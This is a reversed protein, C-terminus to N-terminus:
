AVAVPEQKALFRSYLPGPIYRAGQKGLVGDQVMRALVDALRNPYSSSPDRPARELWRRRLKGLVALNAQRGNREIVDVISRYDQEDPPYKPKHPKPVPVLRRVPSPQTADFDRFRDLLQLLHTNQTRYAYQQIVQVVMKRGADATNHGFRSRQVRTAEGAMISQFLDALPMQPTSRQRLLATIDNIMEQNDDAARGPIEDPSVMGQDQSYGISLAGPRQTLRLAPIRGMTINRLEHMLFTKFRAELPNGRDLDYTRNLDLDFLSSRGLGREGVPSLMRFVIRQLCDEIDFQYQVGNRTLSGLIYAAFGFTRM